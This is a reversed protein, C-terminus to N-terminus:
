RVVKARLHKIKICNADREHNNADVQNLYFLSHCAKFM